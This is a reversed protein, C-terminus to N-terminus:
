KGRGVPWNDQYHILAGYTGQPRQVAEERGKNLKRSADARACLCVLAMSSGALGGTQQLVPKDAPPCGAPSPRQPKVSRKAQRRVPGPHPPYCRVLCVTQGEVWNGTEDREDPTAEDNRQQWKRCPLLHKTLHVQSGTAKRPGFSPSVAIQLTICLCTCAATETTMPNDQAVRKAHFHVQRDMKCPVTAAGLARPLM